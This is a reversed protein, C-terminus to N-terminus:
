DLCKQLVGMSFYAMFSSSLLLCSVQNGLVVLVVEPGQQQVAQMDLWDLQSSAERGHSVAGNILGKITSSFDGYVQITLYFNTV